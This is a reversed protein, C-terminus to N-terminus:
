EALSNAYLDFLLLLCTYVPRQKVSAVIQNEGCIIQRPLGM